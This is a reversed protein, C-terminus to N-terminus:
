FSHYFCAILMLTGADIDRDDAIEARVMGLKSLYASFQPFIVSPNNMFGRKPPYGGALAFMIRAATLAPIRGPLTAFSKPAATAITRLSAAVHILKGRWGSRNSLNPAM